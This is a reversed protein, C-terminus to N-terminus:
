SAVVGRIGGGVGVREEGTISGRDRKWTNSFGGEHWVVLPHIAYIKKKLQHATHYWSKEPSLFNQHRKGHEDVFGHAIDSRITALLVDLSQRPVAYGYTGYSFSTELFQLPKSQFSDTTSSEDRTNPYKWEHGGLFALFADAPLHSWILDQRKQADCFILSAAREFLRADDEFIVVTELDMSKAKELCLRWAMTLGYGRRADTVGLCHHIQPALGCSQAWKRKFLELRGENREDAGPTGQLSIVFIADTNKQNNLIPSKEKNESSPSHKQWYGHVYFLSLYFIHPLFAVIAIFSVIVKRSLTLSIARRKTPKLGKSSISPM